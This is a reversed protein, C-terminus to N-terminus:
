SPKAQSTDSSDTKNEPAPKKEPEPNKPPEVPKSVDTADKKEFGTYKKGSEPTGVFNDGPMGVAGYEGSQFKETYDLKPPKQKNCSFAFMIAILLASLLLWSKM